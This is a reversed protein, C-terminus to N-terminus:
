EGRECDLGDDDEPRMEGSWKGIRLRTDSWQDQTVESRGGYPRSLVGEPEANSGHHRNSSTQVTLFYVQPRREGAKFSHVPVSLYISLIAQMAHQTM